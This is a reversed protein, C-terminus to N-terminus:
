HLTLIGNQLLIAAVAKSLINKGLSEKFIVPFGSGPLVKFRIHSRLSFVIDPHQM